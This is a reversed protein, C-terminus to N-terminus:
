ATRAVREHFQRMKYWLLLAIRLLGHHREFYRSRSVWRIISKPIPTQTLLYLKNYFGYVDESLPQPQQDVYLREIATNPYIALKSLGFDFRVRPLSLLLELTEMCDEETEFLIRQSGSQIGMTVRRLGAERLLELTQFDTHLPHSYCWFPLGVHKKYSKAFEAVWDRDFTFVDDQFNVFKVPVKRRASVLEEIVNGPTRRRVFRQGRYISRLQDNCCYACSFPCGRTTMTEYLGDLQAISWGATVKNGGVFFKEDPDCDLHPLADLDQRLPRPVNRYIMGDAGRVWVNAIDRPVGGDSGSRRVVEELADEGEGICVADAVRLSREPNITPEIGGWIVPIRLRQRVFDTLMSAAECVVTVASIGVIDAGFEETLQVVSELEARTPPAPYSLVWDKGTNSVMIHHLPSVGHSAAGIPMSAYKKFFIVRVRHGSERLFSSLYAVNIAWRSYPAILVIKGM